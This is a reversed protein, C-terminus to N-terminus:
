YAFLSSWQASVEKGRKNARPVTISLAPGGGFEDGKATDKKKGPKKGQLIDKNHKEATM